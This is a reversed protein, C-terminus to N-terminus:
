PKAIRALMDACAAGTDPYHKAVGERMRVRIADAEDRPSANIAMGSMAVLAAPIGDPPCNAVTWEVMVAPALNAPEAHAAAIPLFLALAATLRLM